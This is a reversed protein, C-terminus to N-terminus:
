IKYKRMLDCLENLKEENFLKQLDNKFILNIVKHLIKLENKNM